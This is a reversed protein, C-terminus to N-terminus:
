DYEQDVECEKVVRLTLKWDRGLAYEWDLSTPTKPKHHAQLAEYITKAEALLQDFKEILEAQEPTQDILKEALTPIPQTNMGM